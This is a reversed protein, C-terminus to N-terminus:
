PMFSVVRRRGTGEPRPCPCNRRIDKDLVCKSLNVSTKTQYLICSNYFLINSAKEITVKM